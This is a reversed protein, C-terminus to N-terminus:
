LAHPSEIGHSLTLHSRPSAPSLPGQSSLSSSSPPARSLPVLTVTDMLPLPPAPTSFPHQQSAPRMLALSSSGRTQGESPMPSEQSLLKPLMSLPFGRPHVSSCITLSPGPHPPTRSHGALPSASPLQIGRTLHSQFRPYPLTEPPGAPAMRHPM